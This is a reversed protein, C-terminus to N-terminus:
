WLGVCLPWTRSWSGSYMRFVLDLRRSILPKLSLKPSSDNTELSVLADATVIIVTAYMVSWHAYVRGEGWIIVM